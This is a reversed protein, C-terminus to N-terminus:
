VISFMAPQGAKVTLLRTDANNLLDFNFGDAIVTRDYDTMNVAVLVRGNGEGRTFAFLGNRAEILIYDGDKFCEYTKRLRGLNAYWSVLDTDESGWPYCRRNFPDGGGEMGAEDGYYVCPVGPLTFQLISALKILRKGRHLQEVSLNFRSMAPKGEPFAEGGLATLLRMTDHTGLINMLSDLVHKPYNRRLMAMTRALQQVNNEKVCAIIANRLPYNMVSDLQGGQFYRRRESYAIKNSADEWVEGVILTQGNERRMAECLPDLFVDPLEDVVDLRWGSVGKRSWHAIVGDGGCIFDIYSECSENVSPLLDIGWWSEYTGKEHFTFWDYYPSYKSQYAGISDYNGYKNFYRSDSGVHNFVGDLIVRMGHALAKSCLMEMTEGDGFAPDIKMYDGTDYKHNSAAEFVPSLYLCTVGLEELYPLKEIIGLLDGGFFDNNQVIGNEDPLFYPCGGWDPRFVAGPKLRLEGGKHFRDIFVQYIIGGYIWDPKQENRAFVTLQFSGGNHEPVPVISGHITYIRFCYWYLGAKPIKLECSFVDYSAATGTYDMLTQSTECGDQYLIVKVKVAVSCQVKIRLGQVAPAQLPIGPKSFFVDDEDFIYLSM